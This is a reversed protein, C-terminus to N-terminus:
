VAVNFFHACAKSPHLDGHNSCMQLITTVEVDGFANLEKERNRPKFFFFPYRAIMMTECDHSAAHEIRSLRPRIPHVVPEESLIRSFSSHPSRLLKNSGKEEGSVGVM